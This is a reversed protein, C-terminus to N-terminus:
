ERLVGFLCPLAAWTALGAVYGWARRKLSFRLHTLLFTPLPVSQLEVFGLFVDAAAQFGPDHLDHIIAAFTLVDITGM